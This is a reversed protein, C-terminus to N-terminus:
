LIDGGPRVAIDGWAESFYPPSRSFRYCRHYSHSMLSRYPMSVSQMIFKRASRICLAEHVEWSARVAFYLLSELAGGGIKRWVRALSRLCIIRLYRSDM